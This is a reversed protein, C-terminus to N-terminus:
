TAPEATAPKPKWHASHPACTTPRLPSTTTPITRRTTAASSSRGSPWWCTACFSGCRRCGPARRSSTSRPSTPRTSCRASRRWTTKWGNSAGAACRWRAHQARQDGAAARQQVDWANARQRWHWKRSVMSWSAPETTLPEIGARNSRGRTDAAQLTRTPGLELYVKFRGYWRDPEGPMQDWPKREGDQQTEGTGSM